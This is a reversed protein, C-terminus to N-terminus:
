GQHPLQSWRQIVQRWQSPVPVHVGVVNEHASAVIASSTQAGVVRAM